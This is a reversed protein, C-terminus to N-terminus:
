ATDKVIHKTYCTVHTKKFYLLKQKTKFINEMQRCLLAYVEASTSCSYINHVSSNWYKKTNFFEVFLFQYKKSSCIIILLFFIGLRIQFHKNIFAYKIENVYLVILYQAHIYKNLPLNRSSLTHYQVILLPVQLLLIRKLVYWGVRLFFPHLKQHAILIIDAYQKNKREPGHSVHLIM